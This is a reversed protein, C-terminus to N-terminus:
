QCYSTNKCYKVPYGFGWCNSCQKVKSIYPKVSLIRGALHVNYPLSHSEFAIKAIRLARGGPRKSKAYFTEVKVAPIKHLKLNKLITPGWHEFGLGECEIEYPVVITGYSYNLSPHENVQINEPPNTIWENLKMSASESHVELLRLEGKFKNLTIEHGHESLINDLLFDDKRELDITFFKPWTAPGFLKEFNESAIQKRTKNGQVPLTKGKRITVPNTVKLDYPELTIVSSGPPTAGLMTRQIALTTM